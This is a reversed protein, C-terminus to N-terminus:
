SAAARPDLVAKRYRRSGALARGSKLQVTFDGSAKSEVAAIASRAVLRSRHIRAFGAGELRREMQALSARHLVPGAPRHLEVYNGAAEIWEIDPPAVFIRRAGDRVELVEVGAPAAETARLRPWMRYIAVIGAYILLDKRLEYPWNALPGFAAYRDGVLRYVGARILGMAVVHVLSFAPAGILHLAVWRWPPPRVPWARRTLWLIAPTLTTLVAVSSFEWVMPQWFPVPVGARARDQTVSFVDVTGIALAVAAVVAVFLGDDRGPPSRRDDM